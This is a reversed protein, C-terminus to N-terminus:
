FPVDAYVLREIEEVRNMQNLARVGEVWSYTGKCGDSYYNTCGWFPRGDKKRFRVTATGSCGPAQCPLVHLSSRAHKQDYGLVLVTIKEVGKSVLVSACEILTAGTTLVDDVLLAHRIGDVNMARYAGQVNVRRQAPTLDKQSPHDRVCELRAQDYRQRLRGRGWGRQDATRCGEEVVWGLGWTTKSPKPPVAVVLDFGLKKDLESVVYGFILPLVRDPRGKKAGELIHQTLLHKKSRDDEKAFYRGTAYVAILVSFNASLHLRIDPVFVYGGRVLGQAILDGYVEGVYGCLEGALASEIVSLLETGNSVHIDPWCVDPWCMSLTSGVLITGVRANVAEAIDSNRWTVYVSEHPTAGSQEMAIKINGLVEPLWDLQWSIIQSRNAVSSSQWAQHQAAPVLFTCPVRQCLQGWLADQPNAESPPRVILCALRDVECLM